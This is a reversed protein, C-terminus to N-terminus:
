SDLDVNKTNQSHIGYGKELLFNIEKNENSITNKISQFESHLINAKRLGEGIATYTSKETRWNTIGNKEAIYSIDRIFGDDLTIRNSYIQTIESVDMKYTSKKNSGDDKSSMLSYVISMSFGRSSNSLVDSSKGMQESSSRSSNSTSDSSRGMSDSSRGMSDSSRGFARSISCNDLFFLIFSIFIIYKM